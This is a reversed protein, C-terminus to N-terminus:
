NQDPKQAAAERMAEPLPRRHENLFQQVKQEAEALQSETLDQRTEMELIYHNAVLEGNRVALRFWKYADVLNREVGQGDLYLRGLNMQGRADGKEAAEHYCEVARPLNRDVGSGHEYMFGLSNLGNIRGREVAKEFWAFAQKFDIKVDEIGTLFIDGLALMADPQDAAAAKKLWKVGEGADKPVGRGALYIRGLTYEALTDGQEAAKRYWKAAEAYDQPLGAGNAYAAGLDTQAPAYGQAASKKLLEAAAVLDRPVGQGKAYKKALQYQSPADIPQGDSFAPPRGDNPKLEEGTAHAFLGVQITWVALQRIM